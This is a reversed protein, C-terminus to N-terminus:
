YFNVQLKGALVRQKENTPLIAEICFSLLKIPDLEEYKRNLKEFLMVLQKSYFFGDHRHYIYRLMKKYNADDDTIKKLIYYILVFENWYINFILIAKFVALSVTSIAMFKEFGDVFEDFDPQIKFSIKQKSLRSRM